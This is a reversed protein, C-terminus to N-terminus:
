RVQAVLSVRRGTLFRSCGAANQPLTLRVYRLAADLSRRGYRVSGCVATHHRSAHTSFSTSQSYRNRIDIDKVELRGAAAFDVEDDVQHSPYWRETEVRGV